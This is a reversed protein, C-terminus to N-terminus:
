RVSTDWYACRNSSATQTTSSTWSSSSATTPTLHRFTLEIPASLDVKLPAYKFRADAVISLSVLNSNVVLQRGSLHEASSAAAAQIPEMFGPLSGGLMVFVVKLQTGAAM